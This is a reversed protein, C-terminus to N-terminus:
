LGMPGMKKQRLGALSPDLEIARDCMKEGRETDGKKQFCLGAEYLAKGDKADIMLLKQCFELSKDYMKRNYYADAMDRLIDTNGPEKAILNLLIKEGRETQGAYICAFGLNENFDNSQDYGANSAKDFMEVAHTYDNNNYYLLGLEYMWVNKTSDLIVAQRYYPVAKLYEEEELYSRGVTYTAEADMPNKKLASTLEQIATGYNEQQYNCMGLIRESNSCTKCKSALDIVKSYQHSNYSFQILQETVAVNDPDIEHVKQIDNQAKDLRHMSINVDADQLYADEYNSYLQIANNFYQSAVLYHRAEKESLGKKFIAKASDTQAAVTFVAVFLGVSILIIKM